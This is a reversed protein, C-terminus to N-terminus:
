ARRGRGSRVCGKFAEVGVVGEEGGAVGFGGGAALDLGDEFVGDDEVGGDIGVEGVDFAVLWLEGHVLTVGNVKGLKAGEEELVGAVKGRREGQEVGAVDDAGLKARADGALKAAGVNADEGDVVALGALGDLGAVREVVM